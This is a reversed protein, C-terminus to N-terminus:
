GPSLVNEVITAIANAHRAALEDNDAEVMVRV